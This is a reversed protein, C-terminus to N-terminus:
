SIFGRKRLEGLVALEFEAQTSRDIPRVLSHETGNADVRSPFSLCYVGARTRRVAVSDLVLPGAEFCTWGRLGSERLHAPAPMFRVNRVTVDSM